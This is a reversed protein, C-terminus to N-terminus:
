TEQTHNPKAKQQCRSGRFNGKGGGTSWNGEKQREESKGHM